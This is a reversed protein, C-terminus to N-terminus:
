CCRCWWRLGEVLGEGDWLRVGGVGDVEVADGRVELTGGGAMGLSSLHVEGGHDVLRAGQVRAARVGGSSRVLLQGQEAFPGRWRLWLWEGEAMVRVEGAGLGEAAGQVGAAEPWRSYHSWSWEARHGDVEVRWFHHGLAYPVLVMFAAGLAWGLSRWWCGFVMGAEVVTVKRWREVVWTPIGIFAVLVGLYAYSAWPPWLDQVWAVVVTVLTVVALVWALERM